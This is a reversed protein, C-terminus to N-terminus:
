VFYAPLSIQTTPRWVLWFVSTTLNPPRWMLWFVSTTLNLPAEVDVLIRPYYTRTLLLDKNM